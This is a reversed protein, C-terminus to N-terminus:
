EYRWHWEKSPSYQLVSFKDQASGYSSRTFNKAEADRGITQLKVLKLGVVQQLLNLAFM